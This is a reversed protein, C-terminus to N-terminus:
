FNLQEIGIEFGNIFLIEMVGFGSFSAMSGDESSKVNEYLMSTSSGGGISEDLEMRTAGALLVHENKASKM